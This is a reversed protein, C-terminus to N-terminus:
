SSLGKFQFKWLIDHCIGPTLLIPVKLINGLIQCIRGVMFEEEHLRCNGIQRPLFCKNCAPVQTEEPFWHECALHARRSHIWRGCASCAPILSPCSEDPHATRGGLVMSCILCLQARRIQGFFQVTEAETAIRELELLLSGGPEIQQLQGSIACVRCKVPHFSGHTCQEWCTHSPRGWVAENIAKRTCSSNLLEVLQRSQTQLQDDNPLELARLQQKRPSIFATCRGVVGPVGKARGGLNFPFPSM